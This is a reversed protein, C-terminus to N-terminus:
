HKNHKNTAIEIGIGGTLLVTGAVVAVVTGGSMGELEEETLQSIHETEFEHGHDKAIDVLDDPTKAAKLKDQLSTDVKVKELFAKLQEKSMAPCPAVAQDYCREVSSDTLWLFARLARAHQTGDRM